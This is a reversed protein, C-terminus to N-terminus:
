LGPGNPVLCGGFGGVTGIRGPISPAQVMPTTRAVPEYAATVAVGAAAYSESHSNKMDTM